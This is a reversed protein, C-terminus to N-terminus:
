PAPRDAPAPTVPGPLIRAAEANGRNGNLVALAAAFAGALRSGPARRGLEADGETVMRRFSLIAPLGVAVDAAPSPEIVPEPQDFPFLEGPDAARAPPAAVVALAIGLVGFIRGSM